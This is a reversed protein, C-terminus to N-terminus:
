QAVVLVTDDGAITGLIEPIHQMDISAAVAGANGILTKVVILNQALSIGTVASKFMSLLKVADQRVSSVQAYRYKKVTGNTKILGLEKIDRSITAQTVNLGYSNLAKLIEEQTDVEIKSVIELLIQQRKNKNM